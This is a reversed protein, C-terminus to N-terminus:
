GFGILGDDVILVTWTDHTHPPYAHDHWAAHFVEAVGHLRPRWAAIRDPAEMDRVYLVARHVPRSPQHMSNSFGFITALRASTRATADASSSRTPIAVAPSRLTTSLTVFPARSWGQARVGLPACPRRRSLDM